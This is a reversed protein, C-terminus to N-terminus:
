ERGAAPGCRLGVLVLPKKSAREGLLKTSSKLGELMVGETKYTPCTNADLTGVWRACARPWTSDTGVSGQGGPTKTYVYIYIYIYM